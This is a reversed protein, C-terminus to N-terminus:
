RGGTGMGNLARAFKSLDKKAQMIAVVYEVWEDSIADQEQLTMEANIKHTIATNMQEILGFEYEINKLQQRIYEKTYDEM